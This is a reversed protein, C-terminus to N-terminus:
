PLPGSAPLVGAARATELEVRDVSGNRDIDAKRLRAETLQPFTTRLDDMSLTRDRDNTTAAYTAASAILIGASFILRSM